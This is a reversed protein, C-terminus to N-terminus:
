GTSQNASASFFCVDFVLVAVDSRNANASFFCVNFVLIAVDIEASCVTWQVDMKAVDSEEAMAALVKALKKNGM